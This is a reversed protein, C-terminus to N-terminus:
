GGLAFRGVGQTIFGGSRPKRSVTKRERVVPVEYKIKAMSAAVFCGVVNDFFHNNVNITKWVEVSGKRETFQREAREACQHHAFERHLEPQSGFLSLCGREGPPTMWRRHVFSKWYNTDYGLLRVAANDDPPRGVYWHEGFERGTKKSPRWPRDISTYQGKAPYIARSQGSERSYAYVTKTTEGWSSDIPYYLIDLMRGSQAIYRRGLIHKELGDLAQRVQGELSLKPWKVRIDVEPYTGYEIVWGTFGQAFAIIAYYLFDTHVDAHAVIVEAEAPIAGRAMNNFKCMVLEPTLTETDDKVLMAPDNQLECACYELGNDAMRNYYHQAESIEGPLFSGIWSPRAEADMEERRSLYYETAKEKGGFTGDKRIAVYEQWLDERAPMTEMFRYRRGSWSPERIPDTYKATLTGGPLSCKLITGIWVTTVTTNQGGLGGIDQRVKDDIAQTQVDSKASEKSEIDDLAVFDPRTNDVNTGRIDQSDIGLSGIASWGGSRWPVDTEPLRIFEQEWRIWTLKGGVTQTACRRSSNHLAQVPMCIEPFDAALAANRQLEHKINDLNQKAKKGISGFWLPFRKYGYLVAWLLGARLMSSKGRARDMARAMKPGTHQTFHGEWIALQLDTLFEVHAPSFERSFTTGMYTKCFLILDTSCAARRPLSEPPPITLDRAAKRKADLRKAETTRTKDYDVGGKRSPQPRKRKLLKALENKSIRGL